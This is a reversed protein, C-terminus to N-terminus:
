RQIIVKRIETKDVFTMKIAYTGSPLNVVDISVSNSGVKGNSSIEMVAVGEMNILEARYETNEGLLFDLHLIGSAPNPYVSIVGNEGNRWKVMEGNLSTDPMVLVGNEIVNGDGDALENLMTEHLNFRIPSSPHTIPSSPDNVLRAHILLIPQGAVINIPNLSMWGIQLLNLTSPELNLATAGTETSGQVQFWPEVGENETMEVGTIEILAPDFDLMLTIAGLEMQHDARVPFIMDQTVPMTGHNVLQLSTAHSTKVGTGPVATGNVDGACLGYINRTVNACNLAFTDIRQIKDVGSFMWKPIDFYPPSGWGFTSAKRIADADPTSILPHPVKVSAVTRVVPPSDPLLLTGAIHKAVLLYDTNNVGSWTQWQGSASASSVEINYTGNVLGSFDYFGTSTTVVPTGQVVGNKKLTIKLGDLPTKPNNYYKAYGSIHFDSNITIQSSASYQSPCVGSTVAVRYYTAVTLNVATYTTATTGPIDTWSTGNTSYQWNQVTGTSNQLTLLTSNLGYCVQTGGTVNGGATTPSVTVTWTGTAVAPSTNCTGDKSYRRYSTTSSLPGAPTYTTSTASVIDTAYSDASSRWTYTIIGDGGSAQTTNGIATAPNTNYCITEGTTAIAGPSYVDYVNIKLINSAIAGTWDPSCTAKSMRRYWTSISLAGPAYTTGTASGIDSFNTGDTSSQWQYEADGSQGSAESTSTFTAPVAGNCITQAAAIVGGDTPDACCMADYKHKYEYAGMDITGSQSSDRKLLKRAFGTGRIDTTLSNLANDGADIGPSIYCLRYDGSGSNVFLPDTTRCSGNPTFTYPTNVVDNDGNGYCTNNLTVSKSNLYVQKGSNTCTNGWIIDNNLTLDSSSFIGGGNNFATNAVITTNTVVPNGDYIGLGGGTGASNGKILCNIINPSCGDSSIGGGFNYSSATNGSIVCNQITPASNEFIDIGGGFDAAVNDGIICDSIMPNSSYYIEIGGAEYGATNNSITSHSIAPSSYKMGIGAGDKITKNYTITCSDIVANSNDLCVIGGFEDSFSRTITCKRIVPNSKSNYIAGGHYNSTNFDFTCNYILPSNNMNFMGGGKMEFMNPPNYSNGNGGKIVFGDIISTNTLGLGDPHYFVHFSNDSLTSNTFPTSNYVDNDTLDASLITLNTAPNRQSRLTETGAFGGYVAVGEQLFFSMYRPGTGGIEVTPKYTGAAVWIETGSCSRNIVSQLQTADCANAWDLGSQIGAGSVTVYQRAGTCASVVIELAGMAPTSNRNVDAYDKLIGTGAAGVLFARYPKFGAATNDTIGTFAPSTNLSNNDQGTASQWESLTTKDGGMFGPVGGPAFYDNYDITLNATSTLSIAYHKGTTGGTRYNSFINNRYDRTITASNALAYTNGTEATIDGGIYVTNFYLNSAGTVSSVKIGYIQNGNTIDTGLKIINNSTTSSGDAIHIGCVAASVSTSLTKLDYIFNKSITGSSPEGSFVIGSVTEEASNNTNSLSSITNGSITQANVSTSKVIIGAVSSGDASASNGCATSLYSITNGTVINTGALGCYIGATQGAGTNTTGNNINVVQNGTIASADATSFIGYANQVDETSTSSLMINNAQLTSGILNGSITRTGGTSTYIGYFNLAGATTNLAASGIFNGSIVQTGAGASYIGYFNGDTSENYFSISSTGNGAGVTNGTTTGVNVTGGSINIGYFDASASNYWQINKITNGQINSALTSGARLYIGYWGNNNEGSKYMPSDLCGAASGGVYNGSITFNGGATNDVRIGYFDNNNSYVNSGTEYISNASITFDSSGGLMDIAAAYTNTNLNMFNYFNNYSISNQSNEKGSTGVSTLCSFPRSTGAATFYNHFITNGDNGSGGSSTSFLVIGGERTGEVTHSGKLYCYGITNNIADNILRITSTGALSSTSTNSITLSAVGALNVRGDIIVNGAGNLDILPGALNGTVSLGSSTPNVTVSAYSAPQSAPNLLATATETTSSNIKVTIVGKHTGNNINDFAAKLTTYNGSSTGLTATVTVPYVEFAGMSPVALRDLGQYDVPVSASTTGALQIQPIYDTANTGGPSSFMPNVSLSNNDQGTALRWNALSNKPYSAIMGLVGGTGSVLYDNYDITLNSASPEMIAYHTGNATGSNSRANFFLNSNLKRVATASNAFGYSPSSGSTPTGGIYVTNFLVSESQGSALSIGCLIVPKNDGIIIINNKYTVAGSATRIGYVAAPSTGSPVSLGYIFNNSIESATLGGGYYIGTVVGTFNNYISSINYITNGSIQQASATTNNFLIGCAPQNNSSNTNGCAISLDHISNSALTDTGANVLIGSVMGQYSSSSTTGNTINAITNGTVRNIGTSNLMIGYAKQTSTTSTSLTSISNATTTNGVVNNCIVCTASSAANTTIGFFNTSNAASNSTNIANIINNSVTKTGAGDLIIGYFNGNSTANTHIVSGTDTAAGIINGTTTGVNVLGANIYIAYFHAAATNTWSINSITNGQVSSVTTTGANLYIGYFQNDSGTHTLATGVCLPQSGGIYNGSITYNNGTNIRIGFYGNTTTATLTGSDYFSNSSITWDTNYSSIFIGATEPATSFFNYINNNSITNNRNEFGTSGSSYIARFPRTTGSLTINCHDVFNFSNGTGTTATSFLVISSISSNASAKVLCYKVTNSQATNIFRIASTSATNNSTSYSNEIALDVASGTKNVRGDITVNTAGNLDILPAALSGSISLGTVIPFVDVSTYSSTSGYGSQYLVATNTESTSGAIKVTVAGKHTGDNIAAFAAALTTYNTPGSVPSTGEVTVSGTVLPLPATNPQNSQTNQIFFLFLAITAAVAIGSHKRAFSFNVSMKKNIICKNFM